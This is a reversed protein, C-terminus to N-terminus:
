SFDSSLRGSSRGPLVIYPRKLREVCTELLGRTQPSRCYTDTLAAILQVGAAEDTGVGELGYDVSFRFYQDSIAMDRHERLFSVATEETDTVLAVLYKSFDLLRTPVPNTGRRGAGVSVLCAIEMGPWKLKASSLTYNVPNNAGLGGDVYQTQYPGITIPDFFGPAASTARAAEWITVGVGMGQELSPDSSMLTVASHVVRRAVVVRDRM